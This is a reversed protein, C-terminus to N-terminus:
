HDLIRESFPPMTNRLDQWLSVPIELFLDVIQPDFQRGAWLKIEECAAEVEKPLLWILFFLIFVVFLFIFAAVAVFFVIIVFGVVAVRLSRPVHRSKTYAFPLRLSVL